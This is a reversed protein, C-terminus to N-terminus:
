FQTISLRPKNSECVAVFQLKQHLLRCAAILKSEFCRHQQPVWVADADQALQDMSFFPSLILFYALSVGVHFPSTNHNYTNIDMNLMTARDVDM